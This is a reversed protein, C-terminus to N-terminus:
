LALIITKVTFFRAVHQRKQKGDLGPHHDQEDVIRGKGPMLWDQAIANPFSWVDDHLSGYTNVSNPRTPCDQHPKGKDETKV